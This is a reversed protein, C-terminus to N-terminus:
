LVKQSARKKLPPLDLSVTPISILMKGLTPSLTANPVGMYSAIGPSLMLGSNPRPSPIPVRNDSSSLFRPSLNVQELAMSQLDVHYDRVCGIRAGAGTTWRCQPSQVLVAPSIGEKNENHMYTAAKTSNDIWARSCNAVELKNSRSDVVVGKYTTSLVDEDSVSGRKVHNLDVDNEKLYSIFEEFNEKTPLYHGSYPWIAMLIGCKVVLRGAATTAGGSLFSSHQFKGKEKKGVYLSRTTSLVFIWRSDETTHVLLDSKKYVLKGNRIVVEYAEREKQM